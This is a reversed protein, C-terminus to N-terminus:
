VTKDLTRIKHITKKDQVERELLHRIKEQATSGGGQYQSIVVFKMKGITQTTEESQIPNM